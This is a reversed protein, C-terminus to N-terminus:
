DQGSIIRQLSLRLIRFDLKLSLNQAYWIDLQIQRRIDMPQGEEHLQAWGFLGPKVQDRHSYGTIRAAYYHHTDSSLPRPGVLSLDGRLLNLLEPLHDLNSVALIRGVTNKRTDALQRAGATEDDTRFTLLCFPRGYQGVCVRRVFPWAGFDAWACLTCVLLLPSVFLIAVLAALIDVGRKIIYGRDPGYPQRQITAAATSRLTQNPGNFNRKHVISVADFRQQTL